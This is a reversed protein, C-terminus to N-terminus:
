HKIVKLHETKGNMEVTVIYAGKSWNETDIQTAGKQQFVIQGLISRVTIDTPHNTEITLKDSFPNPYINIPKNAEINQVSINQTGNITGNGIVSARYNGDGNYEPIGVVPSNGSFALSIREGNYTANGPLGSVIEEWGNTEDWKELIINEGNTGSYTRYLSGNHYQMDLNLTYFSATAVSDMWILNSGNYKVISIRRQQEMIGIYKGIAGVYIENSSVVELNVKRVDTGTVPSQHLKAWEDTAANYKHIYALYSDDSRAIAAYPVNNEDFDIDTANVAGSEIVGNNSGVDVWDTGNYKKCAPAALPSMKRYLVYPTGNGDVKFSFDDYSGSFADTINGIEVWAGGSLKFVKIFTSVDVAAYINDNNDIAVKVTKPNQTVLPNSGLNVWDTGNYYRVFGGGIYPTFYSSQAYGVIPTGNSLTQIHIENVTNGSSFLRSGVYSWTQAKSLLPFLAVIFASTIIKKM